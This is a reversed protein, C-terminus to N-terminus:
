RPRPEAHHAKRFAAIVLVATLAAAALSGVDLRAAGRHAVLAVLGGGIFGGAAGAISEGVPGGPFAAPSIRQEVLGATLGLLIWSVIATVDPV